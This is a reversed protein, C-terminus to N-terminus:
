AHQHNLEGTRLIIGHMHQLIHSAHFPDNGPNHLLMDHIHLPKYFSNLRLHRFLSIIVLDQEHKNPAFLFKFSPANQFLDTIRSPVKQKWFLIHGVFGDEKQLAFLSDMCREGMKAMGAECMM